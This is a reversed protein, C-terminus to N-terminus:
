FSKPRNPLDKHLPRIIERIRNLLRPMNLPKEFFDDIHEPGDYRFGASSETTGSIVFVPINALRPGHRLHQLVQRGDEGQRGLRLDLLVLAPRSYTLIQIANQSNAAGSVRIGESQLVQLLVERCDDDDEVILIAGDHPEFVDQNSEVIGAFLPLKIELASGEAHKSISVTGGHLQVVQKVMALSFEITGLRWGGKRGRSFGYFLDPIDEARIGKGSDSIALCAIGNKAHLVLQISGCPPHHLIRHELLLAIAELLKERDGKIFVERGPALVLNIKNSSVLPVLNELADQAIGRLGFPKDALSMKGSQLRAM